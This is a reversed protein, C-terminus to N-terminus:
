QAKLRGNPVTDKKKAFMFYAFIALVVIVYIASFATSMQQAAFFDFCGKVYVILIILPLIFMMYAKGLPFRMGKGANVEDLFNEWGWGYRSCCFLVFLLSGLPLLNNSVIFDELDMINSEPGFPHIGSWLNFGLVCPISGIIVVVLNIAVAKKREMDWLDMCFGIINEFVAIVTSLAAFSLFVFFMTGWIRGGSMSNFINPLTIFVLGPGAGPEVDYAFCSPIVILGATLAVFTDLATISVAEGFLSRDKDLYSGFIEMSGIGVSLTFFAQGMAAFCVNGIGNEKLVGFDPVLYYKLGEGAGQLTMSRIAMIVMLILLLSMLVKTVREVGGQLGLACIGFSIVIALVTWFLMTPASGLMGGFEGAVGDPDLGSMKGSAMQYIYYLMWGAVMTYFFMLIYNGALAIPGYKSWNTGKPQLAGFAKGASKQSGRGVAFEATMIPIGLLLLFVLYILIFAAGGNAGALYPFKWVNGIGIACGASVLIFGIRSGFKERNEM